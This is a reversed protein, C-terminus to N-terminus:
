KTQKYLEKLFMLVNGWFNKFFLITYQFDPILIKVHLFNLILLIYLRAKADARTFNENFFTM